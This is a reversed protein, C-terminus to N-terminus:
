RTTSRRLVLTRAGTVLIVTALGAGLAVWDTPATSNLRPARDPVSGGEPSSYDASSGGALVSSAGGTAVAILSSQPADEALEGSAGTLDREMVFNVEIVGKKRRPLQEITSNKYGSVVARMTLMDRRDQGAGELALGVDPSRFHGPSDNTFPFTMGSYNDSVTIYAAGKVLRGTDKDRLNGVYVLDIPQDTRAPEFFDDGNAWATGALALACGLMAASRWTFARTM